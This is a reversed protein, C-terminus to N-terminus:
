GERLTISLVGTLVLGAGLAFIPQPIEAFFWIGLITAGFPELLAMTATEFSRLGALSSFYLTHATATPILGLAALFVLPELARPIEIATRTLLMASGITLWAVLCIFFMTPMIPTRRGKRRGYNLYFAEAVAALTAELDGLLSATAGTGVDSSAIIIAGAFSLALSVFVLKHTSERHLITSIILSFIPTTNVLVTANLLTTNKVASIFLIFHVGILTGLVLLDKLNRRADIRLARRLAILPFALAASAFLLRWFAVSLAGMDVLRIFIAATGFLIGASLGQLLARQRGKGTM